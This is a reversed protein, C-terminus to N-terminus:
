SVRWIRVGTGFVRSSIRWGNKKAYVKASAVPAARIGMPENEFTACDEPVMRSWDYKSFGIKDANRPPLPVGKEIKMAVTM